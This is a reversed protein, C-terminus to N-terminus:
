RYKANAEWGKFIKNIKQRLVYVIAQTNSIMDAGIMDGLIKNTNTAADKTRRLVSSTWEDGSLDPLNTEPKDFLFPRYLVLM